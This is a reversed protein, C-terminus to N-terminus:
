RGTRGPRKAKKKAVERGRAWRAAIAQRAIEQRRKASLAKARALGGRQGLARAAENVGRKGGGRTTRTMRWITAAVDYKASRILRSM